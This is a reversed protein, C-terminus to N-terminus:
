ANEEHFVGYFVKKKLFFTVVCSDYSMENALIFDPLFFLMRRFAQNRTNM